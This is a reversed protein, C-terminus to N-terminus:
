SETDARPDVPLGGVSSPQIVAWDEQQADVPGPKRGIRVLMFVALVGLLVGSLGFMGSPGGLRMALGSLLPGVISGAAWVFLIGSMVQPIQKPACRDIAHAVAVGYFSLAGAGWVALAIMIGMEGIVDELMAIVLAAAGSLIALAAIVLRREVLDSLRGAPWQLILGGLWAAASAIAAAAVGGGGIAFDEAYVPLLALTGTNIIGALVSAVVAAPALRFLARLPMAKRESVEPQAQRTVCIPILALALFLAPWAYAAASLVSVGTIVFPGLMLALKTAMHYIGMVNGRQQAPTAAGLWSEASTFMFAFALGQLMRVVAWAYPSLVLGLLLTGAATLAAGVAFLRINGVSALAAPAFWAGAMFGAAYLGAILGIGVPSVGLAELGLPTIVGLMGGSFQLIMVALTLAAVNRLGTM